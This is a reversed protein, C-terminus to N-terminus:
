IGDDLPNVSRVEASAALAPWASTEARDITTDNHQV